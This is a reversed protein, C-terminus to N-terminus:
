RYTFALKVISTFRLAEPREEEVEQVADRYVGGEDGHV